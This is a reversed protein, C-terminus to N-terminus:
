GHGSSAQGRRVAPTGTEALLQTFILGNYFMMAENVCNQYLRNPV